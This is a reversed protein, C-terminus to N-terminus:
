SWGIGVNTAMGKCKYGNKVNTDLYSSFDFGVQILNM